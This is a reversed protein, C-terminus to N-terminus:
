WRGRLGLLATPAADDDGTGGPSLVLYIGVATTAGGAALAVPVLWRSTNARAQVRDFDPDNTAITESERRDPITVLWYVLAGGVVAAGSGVLIWGLPSPTRAEQKRAKALDVRTLAIQDRAYDDPELSEADDLLQEALSWSEAAIANQAMEVKCNAVVSRAELRDPESTGESILFANAAPLAENCRGAKFWAIAENKRLNPDPFADYAQRFKQAANAFRGAQFERFGEDNLRNMAARDNQAFADSGVLLLTLLIAAGVFPRLRRYVATPSV